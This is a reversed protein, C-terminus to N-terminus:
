ADELIVNSRKRGTSMIMEHTQMRFPWTDLALALQILLSVPLTRARLDDLNAHGGKLPNLLDPVRQVFDDLGGQVVTMLVNSIPQAPNRFLMNCLYDFCVRKDFDSLQELAEPVPKIDLLAMKKNPYFEDDKVVLPEGTRRDWQLLPPHQEFGRRDDIYKRAVVVLDRRGKAMEAHLEASKGQIAEVEATRDSSTPDGTVLGMQAYDLESQRRAWQQPITNAKRMTLFKARHFRLTEPEESRPRGRGRGAKGPERKLDIRRDNRTDDLALMESQWPLKNPLRRLQDLADPVLGIEYWPPTSPHPRRREPNWVGAKTARLSALQESKIALEHQRRSQSPNEIEDAGAIEEVQAAMDLRVTFNKRETINRPIFAVKEEDPLWALTRVLGYHHFSNEQNMMGNIYQHMALISSGPKSQFAKPGTLNALILLTDNVTGKLVIKSTVTTQDPLYEAGRAGFVDSLHPVYRYRSDKQELLPDVCSKYTNRDPEVM